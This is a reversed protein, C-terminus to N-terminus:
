SDKATKRFRRINFKDKYEFNPEFGTEGYRASWHFYKRRLELLMNHDHVLLNFKEVTIKKEAVQKRYYEIEKNTCYWMKPKKGEIYEDLRKKVATLDLPYNKEEKGNPIIYVGNLKKMDILEKQFKNANEGMIHLPIYSYRNSLHPRTGYTEHWSNPRKLEEEVYWGQAILNNLDNNLITDWDKDSRGGWVNDFDLLQVTESANHPYSGGVDSHVGPLIYEDGGAATVKTLMFNVRHEDSAVLHFIKKAKSIANLKLEGVDNEFNKFAGTTSPDYSSVTDFLGVFEVKVRITTVDIGAQTLKLGLHGYKPLVKLETKANHADRKEMEDNSGDSDTDVWVETAPYKEKTVEYVFNRAAAAGRSFGFVDLYICNINEKQKLKVVKEVAKECAKLVKAIIGTSGAGFAGGAGKTFYSSDRDYDETGIGEIYIKSIFKGTNETYATELRAINSWDNEYSSDGGGYKDYAKAAKKKDDAIGRKANTNTRNNMTGDMFVGLRIDVTGKPPPPPTYDGFSINTAM